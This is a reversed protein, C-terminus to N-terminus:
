IVSVVDEPAFKILVIQGSSGAFDTAYQISGVHLGTSCGINKDDCVDVRRVEITEGIGNYIHGNKVTGRLVEINGGTISYFNADVAKHGLICGDSTLAFGKHELFTWLQELIHKSQVRGLREVFALFPGFPAHADLLENFKKALPAPMERGDLFLKDGKLNVRGASYERLQVAPNLWDWVQQETMSNNLCVRVLKRGIQTSRDYSFPRTRGDVPSRLIVTINHDNITYQM